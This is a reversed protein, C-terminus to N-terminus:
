IEMFSDFTSRLVNTQFFLEVKSIPIKVKNDMSNSTKWQFYYDIRYKFAYTMRGKYTKCQHVYFTLRRFAVDILSLDQTTYFIKMGLGKRLQTLKRFLDEPFDKFNNKNFDNPLEDWGVIVPKNYHPLLQKYNSFQADAFTCPFNTFIYIRDGYKKRYRHLQKVMSITKGAGALGCFAEM